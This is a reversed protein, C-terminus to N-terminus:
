QKPNAGPNKDQKMSNDSASAVKIHNKVKRDGANQKAIKEAAEKQDKSNVTGTLEINKDTVKAQVNANALSPDQQLASQISTQVDGSANAADSQPLKADDGKGMHDSSQGKKDKDQDPAQAPASPDPQASQPTTDSANNSVTPPTSPTQQSPMTQAMAMGSGLAIMLAFKNLTNM